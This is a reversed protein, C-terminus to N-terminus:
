YKSTNSLMNGRLPRLKHLSTEPDPIYGRVQLVARSEWPPLISVPVFFQGSPVTQFQFVTLFVPSSTIPTNMEM